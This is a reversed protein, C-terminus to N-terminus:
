LGAVDISIRELMHFGGPEPPAGPQLRTSSHSAKLFALLFAHLIIVRINFVGWM